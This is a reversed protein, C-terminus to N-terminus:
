REASRSLPADVFRSVHPAMGVLLNSLAIPPRPADPSSRYAEWKHWLELDTAEVEECFREYLSALRDPDHLDGFVYGPVGLETTHPPPVLPSPSMSPRISDLLM